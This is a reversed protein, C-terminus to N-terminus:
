RALVGEPKAAINRALTGLRRAAAVLDRHAHGSFGLVFGERGEGCSRMESVLCVDIDAEKRIVDAVGSRTGRPLYAVMHLGQQPVQFELAGVATRALERCVLDRAIRYHTRMRRVHATLTGDALLEAIADQIFPQPFRDFTARAAVVRGLAEPPLAIYALRLGPFLTKSFTGIYLVREAGIGALATLPAGGFRFESDYDDELIWSRTERAWDLLAVRRSMSMTVGSPFQHSPTVYAGAARPALRIGRAVDLGQTDTPVPVARMGASSLTRNAALYGPDEFWLADGQSFLSATALRLAHQTGNVIVICDPDCRVGRNIALHRSIQERLLKSGRPDGYGLSASSASAVQRRLVMGLRNLVRADVSTCGLAFARRPAPTLGVDVPSARHVPPAPLKDTVYTGAGHRAEILGDCFLYDYAEVVVNRPM